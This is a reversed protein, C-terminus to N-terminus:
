GPETLELVADAIDALAPNTKATNRLKDRAQEKRDERVADDQRRATQEDSDKRRQTREWQELPKEIPEPDLVRGHEMDIIIRPGPAEAM